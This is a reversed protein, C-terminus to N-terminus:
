RLIPSSFLNVVRRVGSAPLRVGSARLMDVTLRRWEARQSLRLLRHGNRGPSDALGLFRAAATRSLATGRFDGGHCAACAARDAKAYRPHGNEQRWRSDGVVHMGHPGGLGLPRELEGGVDVYTGGDAHDGVAVAHAPHVPHESTGIM